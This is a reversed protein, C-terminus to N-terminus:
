SPVAVDNPRVLVVTVDEAVKGSRLKVLEVLSETARGIARARVIDAIVDRGAFKFLGDSAVVLADRPAPRRFATPTACNTGLRQRTHQGVTLNDIASDTVVWAESDGTSVGLLGRAGLVIVVGTTEGAGNASLGADAERFLVLWAELDELAFREDNVASEVVAILCRSAAAGGRIGGGGDAVVVVLVDGREFIRASEQPTAQVSAAAQAYQYRSAM